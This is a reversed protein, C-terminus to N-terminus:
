NFQPPSISKLDNSIMKLSIKAKDAIPESKKIPSINFSKQSLISKISLNNKKVELQPTSDNRYVFNAMGDTKKETLNPETDMAKVSSGNREIKEKLQFV